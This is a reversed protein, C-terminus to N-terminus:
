IKREFIAWGNRVSWNESFLVYRPDALLSDYAFRCKFSNIDDLCIYRSGDLLGFESFGQFEGGDILVFDFDLINFESRITQIGFRSKGDASLTSLEPMHKELYAIDKKLWSYIERFSYINLNSPVNKYFLKLEKKSPFSEPGVSSLRHVHVFSLSRYYDQLRNFRVRSIELCHLEVGSFSPRSLIGSTIARTSGEGSSSGIELFTRLEPLSAIKKLAIHFDDNLVEPSIVEEYHEVRKRRRFDRLSLSLSPSVRRIVISILKQASFLNM